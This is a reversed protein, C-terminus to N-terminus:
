HLKALARFKAIAKKKLYTCDAMDSLNTRCSLVCKLLFRDCFEARESFQVSHFHAKLTSVHIQDSDIAGYLVIFDVEFDKILQVLRVTDPM